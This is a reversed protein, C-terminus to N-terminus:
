LAGLLDDDTMGALLIIRNRGSDKARSLAAGARRLMEDPDLDHIQLTTVGISVTLPVGIPAIPELAVASRIKDAAILAGRDKTDPLLVLFEEGGVRAVVDGTRCAAVLLRAVSALTADGADYGHRDNIQHFADIDVLLLALPSGSRRAQALTQALTQHASRRNPLGTLPDFAADHEAKAQTRRADAIWALVFTGSAILVLGPGAYWGLSSGPTTGLGLGVDALCGFTTLSTWREPESRHRTGRVAALAAVTMTLIFLVGTAVLLSSTAPALRPAVFAAGAVGVATLVGGAGLWMVLVATRREPVTTELWGAPWPTWALGLLVALVAVAGLWFQAGVQDTTALPPNEAFGGATALACGALVVWASLYATATMLLRVDSRRRYDGVLLHVIVAFVLGTAILAAPVFGDAAPVRLDRFPMLVVTAVVLGITTVVLATVRDAGRTTVRWWAATRGRWLSPTRLVSM